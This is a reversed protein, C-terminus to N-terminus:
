PVLRYGFGRVNHIQASGILHKLRNIYVRIAGESMMESASWLEEIIMEKTVVEGSNRILLAMLQYEKPTLTIENEDVLIRKHSEDLLLSGLSQNQNKPKGRRLLVGLRMILEQTDFPKKLYDDAGNEYANALTEMDCHSSLFMAPTQDDATRLSHLLSLGDVLPVNIDLLYGDFKESYTVELAEHGNRCLTVAYGEEELVDQISEGFLLDDELLLLKISM